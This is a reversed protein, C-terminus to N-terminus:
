GEATRLFILAKMDLVVKGDQNILQPRFHVLGRDPRSASRVADTVTLRLRLTDGPRVPVLWRLDDVGPSGFGATRPLYHETLLRMMLATTHWGSAILGGFPGDSAAAPDTHFSQLDFAGAFDLIEKETVEIQGNHEYTMGPVFDEFRRDEQPIAFLDNQTM